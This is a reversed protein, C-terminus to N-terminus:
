MLYLINYINQLTTVLDPLFLIWFNKTDIAAKPNPILLCTAKFRNIYKAKYYSQITEKTSFDMKMQFHESM